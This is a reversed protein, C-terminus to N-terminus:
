VINLDSPKVIVANSYLFPINSKFGYLHQNQKTTFKGDYLFNRGFLSVPHQNSSTSNISIKQDMIKPKLM